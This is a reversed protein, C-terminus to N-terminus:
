VFCDLPRPVHRMRGLGLLGLEAQRLGAQLMANGRSFAQADIDLAGVALDVRGLERREVLEHAEVTLGLARLLL